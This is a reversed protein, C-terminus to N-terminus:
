PQFGATTTLWRYYSAVNALGASTNAACGGVVKTIMGTVALRGQIIQIVPGGQDGECANATDIL